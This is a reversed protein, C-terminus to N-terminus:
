PGSPVVVTERCRSRSLPKDLDVPIFPHIAGHGDKARQTADLNQQAAAYGPKIHLAARFAEIAADLKGQTRLALGLNNHATPFATDISVAKRYHVIAEDLM